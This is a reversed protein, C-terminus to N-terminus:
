RTSAWRAELTRQALTGAVQLGVFLLGLQLAPVSRFRRSWVCIPLRRAPRKHWRRGSWRGRRRWCRGRCQGRRRARRRCSRSRRRRPDGCAFGRCAGALQGRCRRPVAGAGGGGGADPHVAAMRVLLAAPALLALLIANRLLMAVTALMVGRYAVDALAGGTERVRVAMESVTVTSNVLGGFFGTLEVARAGYLKLLVYNCLGIGAILIVVILAGRLDLLDWRDVKGLPLAPYIM